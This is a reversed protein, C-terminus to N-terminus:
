TRNPHNTPRASPHSQPQFTKPQKNPPIRPQRRANQPKPRPANPPQCAPQHDQPAQTPQSQSHALSKLKSTLEQPITATPKRASATIISIFKLTQDQSLTFAPPMSLV